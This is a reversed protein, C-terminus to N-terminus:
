SAEEDEEDEEERRKAVIFFGLGAAASVASTVALIVPLSMGNQLNDTGTTKQSEGQPATYRARNDGNSIETAITETGSSQTRTTYTTVSKGTYYYPNTGTAESPDTPEPGVPDVVPDTTDFSTRGSVVAINVAGTYTGAPNNYGTKAAFNVTTSATGASSRYFLTDPTKNYDPLSNYTTTDLSYGWKGAPFSTVSSSSELNTLTGGNSGVLTADANSARIGAVFGSANNSTVSVSIQQTLLEDVDGETPSEPTTISVSLIEKVDVNFTTNRSETVNEASVGSIFLYSLAASVFSIVGTLCITVRTKTKLM